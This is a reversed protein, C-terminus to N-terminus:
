AGGRRNAWSSRAHANQERATRLIGRVVDDDTTTIIEAGLERALALNKALRAQDEDSLSRTSEVYFRWGVRRATRRGAAADLARASAFHSQRQRRRAVAPRIEM